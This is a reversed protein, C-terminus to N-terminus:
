ACSVIPEIVYGVSSNRFTLEVTRIYLLNLLSSVTSFTWRTDRRTRLRTSHSCRLRTRVASSLHRASTRSPGRSTSYPLCQATTPGLSRMVGTHWRRSACVRRMQASSCAIVGIYMHIYEHIYIYVYILVHIYIHTHMYTRVYIHIYRYIM